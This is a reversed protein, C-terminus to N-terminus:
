VLQMFFLLCYLLQKFNETALKVLSVVNGKASEEITTIHVLIDRQIANSRSMESVCVTAIGNEGEEEERVIPELVSLSINVFDKFFQLQFPCNQVM